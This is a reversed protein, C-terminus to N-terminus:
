QLVRGDIIPKTDSPGLEVIGRSTNQMRDARRLLYVLAESGVQQRSRYEFLLRTTEADLAAVAGQVYESASSSAVVEPVQGGAILLRRAYFSRELTRSVAIDNVLREQVITSETTPLERLAEIVERTLMVNPGSVALLQAQTPPEKSEVMTTLQERIAVSERTLSPLLGQAPESTKPCNACTTVVQEGVVEQVWSAAEEATSWTAQLGGAASLPTTTSESPQQNLTIRYGAQVVDSTLHIPKQGNGGAAKGLVWPIGNAGNADEVEQEAKVATNGGLSMQRKWDNGKSLVILERYPNKGQSIEAEMQRCNKTALDVKLKAGVLANQMLEYLGPNARQLILAPLSAIAGTAARTMAKLMDEAGSKVENLTDAVGLMPDFTGCSYGLGLELSGAVSVSQRQPNLPQPVVQAGGIEYYWLSDETPTNAAALPSIVLGVWILCSFKM